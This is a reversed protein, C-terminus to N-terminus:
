VHLAGPWPQSEGHGEFVHFRGDSLLFSPSIVDIMTKNSICFTDNGSSRTGIAPYWPQRVLPVREIHVDAPESSNKSLHVFFLDSTEWDIGCGVVADTSYLKFRKVIM